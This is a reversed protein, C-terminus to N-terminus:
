GEGFSYFNVSECDRSVRVCGRGQKEVLDFQEQTGRWRLMAKLRLGVGVSMFVDESFYGRKTM